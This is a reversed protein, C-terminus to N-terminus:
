GQLPGAIGRGGSVRPVAPLVQGVGPLPGVGEVGVQGQGGQHQRLHISRQVEHIGQSAPPQSAGGAEGGGGEEM